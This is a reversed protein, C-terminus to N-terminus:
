PSRRHIRHAPGPQTTVPVLRCHTTQVSPPMVSDSTELSPGGTAPPLPSPTLLRPSSPAERQRPGLGWQHLRLSPVDKGQM